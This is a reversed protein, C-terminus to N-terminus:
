FILFNIKQYCRIPNFFFIKFKMITISINMKLVKISQSNPWFYNTTHQLTVYNVIRVFNVWLCRINAWMKHKILGRYRSKDHPYHFGVQFITAEVNNRINLIKQPIAAIKRRLLCATIQKTIFYRSLGNTKISWKDQNKLKTAPVIENTLTDVVKLEKDEGLFLDFRGKPGQIANILLDVNEKKCFEQNSTSHYAGDTHINEITDTVIEKAENVGNQLFENDAASVVRVDVGTILNLKESDCSETVNISYGKVQNGDKNRYHCDTDHPSQVSHSSIEEKSRSIITKSEDVIFQESFVRHLTTYHKSCSFHFLQIIKYALSGLEQMKTKVEDSTSRYVVKNGKEKLLNEIVKKESDLLPYTFITERIDQCFLRLTEHILEYRSLWAINSGLLKSDMRISKGSVEFDTAQGTTVSTFTKELLNIHKAKEYEVMRKRFLYYTSETPIVDDMNMLGLASRILLNYRGQEFLEADSWGKGEKLIMMAILVRVSSNPAGTQETFLAKCISEDIRRTVQNRFLNHWADQKEYFTEAKGSLFLNPDSFIGLQSESKTKKFMPNDTKIDPVLTIM